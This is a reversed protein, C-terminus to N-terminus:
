DRAKGSGPEVLRVAIRDGAGTVVALPRTMAAVAAARARGHQRALRPGLRAMLATLGPLPRIYLTVERVQGRDDLRLLTAEEIPQEGVRARYFLARTQADGVDEFYRIDEITAFVSVMLEGIQERGRFEARMSIPSRLVAPALVALFGEVDGTEVAERFRESTARALADAEHASGRRLTRRATTAAGRIAEGCGLRDLAHLANPWLVLGAEVATEASRLLRHGALAM